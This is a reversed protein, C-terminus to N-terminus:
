TLDDEILQRRALDAGVPHPQRRQRIRQRDVFEDGTVTALEQAEPEAGHVLGTTMLLLHPISTDAAPPLM